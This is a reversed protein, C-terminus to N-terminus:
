CNEIEADFEKESYVLRYAYKCSGDKGYIISTPYARLDYALCYRRGWSLHPLSAMKEKYISSCGRIMKM